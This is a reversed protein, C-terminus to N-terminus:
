FKLVEDVPLHNVLQDCHHIKVINFDEDILVEAPIRFFNAGEQKTLPYGAKAADQIRGAAAGSAIVSNVLEPSSKVGYQEYIKGGPDSLLTFALDQKGVYPKMDDVSSEFVAIVHIGAADFEKQRQSIEHVRLNCLACAGNRYFSLYIKKGKLGSLTFTKGEITTATFDIAKQKEQANTLTAIMLLVSIIYKM